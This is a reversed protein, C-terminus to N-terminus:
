LACVGKLCDEVGQGSSAFSRGFILTPLQLFPMIKNLSSLLITDKRPNTKLIESFLIYNPKSQDCFTRVALKGIPMPQIFYIVFDCAFSAKLYILKRLSPQLSVILIPFVADNPTDM